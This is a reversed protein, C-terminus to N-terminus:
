FENVLVSATGGTSIATISGRYMNSQDLSLALTSSAALLVGNNATAAKDAGFRLYVSFPSNNQLLRWQAATSTAMARVSASTGVTITSSTAARSDGKATDGVWAVSDMAGGVAPAPSQPAQRSVLLAVTSATAFLALAVFFSLLYKM